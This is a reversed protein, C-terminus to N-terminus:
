AVRRRHANQVEAPSVPLSVYGIHHCWLRQRDGFGLDEDVLATRQDSAVLIRDYLRGLEAMGVEAVARVGDDGPVSV